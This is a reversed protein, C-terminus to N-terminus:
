LQWIAALLAPLIVGSLGELRFDVYPSLPTPQPNVEVVIAGSAAAELPLRAAPQVLGSTGVSLFLDCSRAATFAAQLADQPLDEGFWVVDPRLLGDCHPCNPPVAENDEWSAVIINETACKYREINGHLEIIQSSGAKVHLNDINQTILTLRPVLRELQAIAHHGPNPQARGILERRWAYWEWVLRPNRRFAQPTALEEPNYRTWLGTQAERFTPIGSEASVGAGTSVVVHQAKRLSEILSIPFGTHDTKM